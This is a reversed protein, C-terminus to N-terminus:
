RKRSVLLSFAIQEGCRPCKASIDRGTLIEVRQYDCSQCRRIIRQRYNGTEYSLLALDITTRVQDKDAIYFKETQVAPCCVGESRSEWKVCLGTGMEDAFFGIELVQYYSIIFWRCENSFDHKELFYIGQDTVVLLGMKGQMFAHVATYIKDGLWLRAPSAYFMDQIDASQKYLIPYQENIRASLKFDDGLMSIAANEMYLAGVVSAM